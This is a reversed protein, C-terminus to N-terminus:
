EVIWKKGNIIYIGHPLDNLQEHNDTDLVKIGRIDYVRWNKEGDAIIDEIATENKVTYKLTVGKVDRGNGDIFYGDSIELIYTGNVTVPTETMLAGQMQEVHSKKDETQTTFTLPISEESGEIYLKATKNEDDSEGAYYSFTFLFYSLAEVETGNAPVVNEITAAPANGELRYEAITRGFNTKKIPMIMNIGAPNLYIDGEINIWIDANNITTLPEESTFELTNDDIQTCTFVYNKDNLATKLVTNEDAGIGEECRVTIKQISTVTSKYEPTITSQPYERLMFLTPLSMKDTVETAQYCGFHNKDAVYYLTKGGSKIEAKGDNFSINWVAAEAAPIDNAFSVTTEDEKVYMYRNAADKITYGGAAASFTLADYEVTEIYKEYATYTRGQLYGSNTDATLADAICSNAAIAYRNGETIESAQVYPKTQSVIYTAEAIDSKYVSEGDVKVAIAKITATATLETEMIWYKSCRTTGLDNVYDEYSPITGDLTYYLVLSEDITEATVKVKDAYIGTPTTFSPTEVNVMEAPLEYVVEISKIYYARQTSSWNIEIKGKSKCDFTYAAETTKLEFVQSKQDGVTISLKADGSSAISSYVTVSTITYDKFAETTLSYSPCPTTKNGLQIGKGKDNWDMLTASSASWEVDTLTANGGEATLDGSKLVHTYTEANMTFTVLALNALLLLFKRM